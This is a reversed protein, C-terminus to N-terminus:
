KSACLNISSDVIYPKFAELAEDWLIRHEYDKNKDILAITVTFRRDETPNYSSHLPGVNILGCSGIEVEYEKKCYEERSVLVQGHYHDNTRDGVSYESREPIVTSYVQEASTSVRLVMDSSWWRMTSGKAGFQFILKAWDAYYVNDSHIVGDDHPPTYFFEIWHSTFGLSNLWPLIKDNGLDEFQLQKHFEPWRMGETQYKSTDINPIYNRIDLFRHYRNM